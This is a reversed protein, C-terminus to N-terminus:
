EISDYKENLEKGTLDIRKWQSRNLEITLIKNWEM